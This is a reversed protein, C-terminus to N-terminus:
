IARFVAANLKRMYSFDRVAWLADNKDFERYKKETHKRTGSIIIISTSAKVNYVEGSGKVYVMKRGHLVVAFRFVKKGSQHLVSLRKEIYLNEWDIYDHLDDYRRKKINMAGSINQGEV